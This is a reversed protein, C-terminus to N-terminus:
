GVHLSQELGTGKVNGGSLFFPLFSFFYIFFLHSQLNRFKNEEHCLKVKDIEYIKQREREKVSNKNRRKERAVDSISSYSM